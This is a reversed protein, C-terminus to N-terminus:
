QGQLIDDAIKEALAYVTAQPHGPPLFPFSSADVVRLGKVGYVRAHSDIVAMSDNATGMKCTAAAHWIPILTERIYQLIEADTSVNATGPYYEPGITTGNMYRWIERVRKVSAIAVEADAPDTLWNPNIVPPDAADPSSITVNGRSFPTILAASIAAYEYQDRPEGASYNKHDGDFASEVLYEVEPWDAPFTSLLKAQTTNTLRQRYSSPLKEFGLLGALGTLPGTQNLIYDKGAQIAYLPDRGLRSATDVNVRFSVSWYPQDWMNQGVGPRDSIISINHKQLTEAPGIGSVMLLQPSQFVGASLIVEKRARLTYTVGATTVSVGNATKDQDFLIKQGLTQTYVVISTNEIAQSLYSTQSSSRHANTPSLTQAVWSSGIISGSDFGKIPLIGAKMFGLKAWSGIPAAYNAWSVQLPGGLSNDFAAPNYDVTGNPPYRKALNPPTFHCSRQFYPLFNQYLYSDDQVEKAWQQYSDNTGRHYALFNRASSGGLTKGRAYHMRRYNAGAQPVTVFDWDILPQTDNPLSGIHQLAALGPIVSGNGNDIQYFGGAEIVAVSLGPNSALRGAIALGATGGGLISHSTLKLSKRFQKTVCMYDFTADQGLVGFSSGYLQQENDGLFASVSAALLPFLVEAFNKKM